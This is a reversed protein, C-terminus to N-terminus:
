HRLSGNDVFIVIERGTPVSNGLYVVPKIIVCYYKECSLSATHCFSREEAMDGGLVRLVSFYQSELSSMDVAYIEFGAAFSREPAIASLILDVTEGRIEANVSLAFSSNEVTKQPIVVLIESGQPLDAEVLEDDDWFYLAEVRVEFRVEQSHSTDTVEFAMEGLSGDTYNESFDVIIEIEGGTDAFSLVGGQEALANASSIDKLMVAESDYSVFVWAGCFPVGDSVSLSLNITGDSSPLGVLEIRALNAGDSEKGFAAEDYGCVLIPVCVFILAACAAFAYFVRSNCKNNYIRKNLNDVVARFINLLKIFYSLKM